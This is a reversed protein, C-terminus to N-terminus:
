TAGGAAKVELYTCLNDAWAEADKPHILTRGDSKRAILKGQNILKYAHSRKVGYSECFEPVSLMRKKM